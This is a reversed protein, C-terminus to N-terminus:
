PAFHLVRVPEDLDNHTILEGDRPHHPDRIQFREGADWAAQADEPSAYMRGPEPVVTIM